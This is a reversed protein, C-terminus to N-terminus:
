YPNYSCGKCQTSLHLAALKAAECKASMGSFKCTDAPLIELTLICIDHMASCESCTLDKRVEGKGCLLCNM